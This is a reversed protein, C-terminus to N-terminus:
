PVCADRLEGCIPDGARAEDCRVFLEECVCVPEGGCLPEPELGRCRRWVLECEPAPAQHMCEPLWADCTMPEDGEPLFGACLGCLEPDAEVMTPDGCVELVLPLDPCFALWETPDGDCNLDLAAEFPFAMDVTLDAEPTALPILRAQGSATCVAPDAEVAALTYGAPFRSATGPGEAGAPSYVLATDLVAGVLQEGTELSWRGDDDADIFAVLVGVAYAGDGGAPQMVRPAPPTFLTLEYRAPFLGSADVREAVSTFLDFRSSGAGDSAAWLVAMRLRGRQVAEGAIDSALTEVRVWGSVTVLPEGRYGGDVAADGCGALAVLAALTARRLGGM